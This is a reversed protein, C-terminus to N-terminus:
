RLYGLSEELINMAIQALVSDGAYANRYLQQLERVRSRLKAHNAKSRAALAVAASRERLDKPLGTDRFLEDTERIHLVRNYAQHEERAVLVCPLQEQYLVPLQGAFDIDAFHQGEVVHHWEWSSRSESQGMTAMNRFLREKHRKGDAYSCVIRWSGTKRAHPIGYIGRIDYDSAALGQLYKQPVM